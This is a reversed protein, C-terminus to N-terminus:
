KPFAIQPIVIVGDGMKAIPVATDFKEAGMLHTAGTDTVFYGYVLIPTTPDANAAFQQSGAVAVAAGDDSDISSGFTPATPVAYGPMDGTTVETFDTLQTNLTPTVNNLFLHYKVGSLPGAAPAMPAPAVLSDLVDRLTKRSYVFHDPNGLIVDM